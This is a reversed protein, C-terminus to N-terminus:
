KHGVPAGGSPSGGGWGCARQVLNTLAHDPLCTGAGCIENSAYEDRVANRGSFLRNASAHLATHERCQCCLLHGSGPMWWRALKDVAVALANGEHGLRDRTSSPEVQRHELEVLDDEAAEDHQEEDQLREPQGREPEPQLGVQLGPRERVLWSWVSSKTADIPFPSLSIRRPRRPRRPRRTRRFCCNSCSRRFAPPRARSRGRPWSWGGPTIVGKVPGAAAMPLGSVAPSSTQNLYRLWSFPPM